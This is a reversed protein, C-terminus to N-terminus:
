LASRLENCQLCILRAAHAAHLSCSSISCGAELLLLISIGITIVSGMASRGDAISDGAVSHLCHNCFIVTCTMDQFYFWKPPATRVQGLPIYKQWQQPYVLLLWSNKM